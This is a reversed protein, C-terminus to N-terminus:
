TKRNNGKGGAFTANGSWMSTFAELQSSSIPQIDPVITFEVAELCPPTTLSGKYVFATSFDVENLLGNVDIQGKDLVQKIFSNETNGASTDFFIGIVAYTQKDTGIETRDSHVFHLELDYSTGDLTHESPAHFHFQLLDVTFSQETPAWELEYGVQNPADVQITYEKDVYNNTIM